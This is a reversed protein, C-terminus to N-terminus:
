RVVRAWDDSQGTEKTTFGALRVTYNLVNHVNENAERAEPVQKVVDKYDVRLQQQENQWHEEYGLALVQAMKVEVNRLVKSSTANVGECLYLVSCVM